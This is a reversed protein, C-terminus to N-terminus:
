SSPLAVSKAHYPASQNVKMSQYQCQSVDSQRSINAALVAWSNFFQIKGKEVRRKRKTAVCDESSCM